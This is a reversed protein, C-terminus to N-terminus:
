IVARSALQKRALTGLYPIEWEVGSFSKVLTVIYIVLWAVGFAFAILGVFVSVILGVIPIHGFILQMLRCAVSFAVSAGGFFISQMAYFRVYANKKELLLFLIGGILPFLCALGAAVNPPLGESGSPAAPPVTAPPQASEEDAM